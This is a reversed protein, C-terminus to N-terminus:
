AASRWLLPSSYFVFCLDHRLLPIRHLRWTRVPYQSFSYLKECNEGSIFGRSMAGFVFVIPQNPLSAALDLPDVLEGKMHTGFIPAGIPLHATVPNKIVKLLSQNSGAAKVRMKQM